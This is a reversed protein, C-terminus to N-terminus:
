LQKCILATHPTPTAGCVPLDDDLHGQLFLEPVADYDPSDGLNIFRLCHQCTTYNPPRPVACLKPALTPTPMGARKNANTQRTPYM